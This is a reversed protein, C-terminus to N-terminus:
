DCRLLGSKLSHGLSKSTSSAEDLIHNRWLKLMHPTDLSAFIKTAPDWPSPIWHQDEDLQFQSVFTKNGLDFAVACVEAGSDREIHEVVSDFVSKSIAQDFDFFM